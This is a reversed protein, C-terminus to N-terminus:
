DFQVENSANITINTTASSINVSGVKYYYDFDIEVYIDFTGSGDWREYKGRYYLPLTLVYDYNTGSQVSSVGPTNNNAGAILGTRSKALLPPTGVPFVGVEFRGDSDGYYSHNFITAPLTVVLTKGGGGNDSDDKCGVVAMGFVLAIVLMGLWFRKNAM